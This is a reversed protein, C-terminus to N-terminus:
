SPVRVDSLVVQLSTEGRYENIQPFYTFDITVPEGAGGAGRREGLLSLWTEEGYTAILEEEVRACDHFLLGVMTLGDSTLFSFRLFQKDKGIRSARAIPVNKDAFLPKENGNGFPELLSIERIVDERIYSLPMPVDIMVKRTLDDESLNARAIMLERFAEFSEKEMSLGAAMPHGGYKTLYEDCECMKEFMSYAPISRGSGKLGGDEADTLVFTPRFYTEKIHGAVLGALSEHLRPVYVILVPDDAMGKDEIASFALEDGEKTMEKREDNLVVLMDAKAAANEEDTEELLEIALTATDLRGSANFCPGLVFGVHYASVAAHEIGTRMLLARMGVNETKTLAKLGLSVIARNEGRLPMVDGVTAFAAFELFRLAEDESKGFLEYLLFVVKWAVVAGCIDPFPYDCDQRHPNVVADAEPIRDYRGNDADSAFVGAGGDASENTARVEGDDDGDAISSVGFPVEHHDTIIVSIGLENAWDIADFASIGNDCTIILDVGDEKAKQVMSPNIGYGDSIRHPIAYDADAGCSLLATHLIYTSCIGDIDYDGIIRIKKGGDIAEKLLAAAKEGDKLLHPSHLQSLSPHLYADMEEDPVDRNVLVRATVPDIGLRTGIAKFDAKKAYMMWKETM